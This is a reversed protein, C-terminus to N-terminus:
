WGKLWLTHAKDMYKHFKRWRKLYDPWRMWKPRKPFDDYDVYGKPPKFNPDLKRIEKLAMDWWYGCDTKTRNRTQKYIGQCEGCAMFGVVGYLVRRRTDCDPCIFYWQKGGYNAPRSELPIYQSGLYLSEAELDIEFPEGESMGKARSSDMMGVFQEITLKMM